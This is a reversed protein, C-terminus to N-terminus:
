GKKAVIHVVVTVAKGVIDSKAWDGQGVGYATRDIEVSGDMTATDGAFKLTFPLVVLVTHDRITLTGTALYADGGKATFSSAKFEAQPFHALDFWDSKPLERDRDPAGTGASGMDITATVSAAGLDAPDFAIKADWKSFTGDFPAGGQLARFGLRSAAHDVAWDAAHATVPALILTVALVGGLRRLPPIPLMRWLTRDRLIFHHHLAAAAHGTVVVILAWGIWYHLMESAGRWAPLAPALPPLTVLGFWSLPFGVISNFLWGSLPLVFLLLYILRHGWTAAASQWPAMPEPPPPPRFLRWALRLVALGLVTLGISKHLAYLELKHPSLPLDTMNWGILVATVIAAAIVWHFLIAVASYRSSTEQMTPM